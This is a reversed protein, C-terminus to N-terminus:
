NVDHKLSSPIIRYISEIVPPLILRCLRTILVALIWIVAFSATFMLFNAWESGSTAAFHHQWRFMLNGVWQDQLLYCGFASIGLTNVLRSRFRFHIMFAIFAVSAVLVTPSAYEYHIFERTVPELVVQLPLYIAGATITVAYLAAWWWRSLSTFLPERAMWFGTIYLAIFLYVEYLTFYVAPNRGFWGTWALVFASAAVLWRLSRLSMARLAPNLVPALAFLLVYIKLFWLTSSTVPFMLAQPLESITIGEGALSVIFLSFAKFVLVTLILKLFSRWGMRASFFGTVLIYPDVSILTASLVLLQLFNHGKFAGLSIYLFHNILIFSMAIVRVAELTSNRSSARQSLEHSPIPSPAKTFRLGPFVRGLAIGCGLFPRRVVAWVGWTVMWLLILLALYGLPTPEYIKVVATVPPYCSFVFAGIGCIFCTFFRPGRWRLRDAAGVLSICLLMLLLNHSVGYKFYHTPNGTAAYWGGVALAMLTASALAIGLWAYVSLRPPYLRLYRGALYLSVFLIFPPGFEFINSKGLWGSYAILALLAAVTAALHARNVMRASLDLVPTIVLVPVLVRLSNYPTSSLPFVLTRWWETVTGTFPEAPNASAALALLSALIAFLYAATIRGWGVRLTCYGCCLALLDFGGSVLTGVFDAVPGTYVRSTWLYYYPAAILLSFALITLM